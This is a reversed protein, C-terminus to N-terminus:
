GQGTWMECRDTERGIERERGSERISERGGKIVRGWEGALARSLNFFCIWAAFSSFFLSLSSFAAPMSGADTFFCSTVPVARLEGRSGARAGVDGTDEVEDLRARDERHIQTNPSSSLSPSSKKVTLFTCSHAEDLV